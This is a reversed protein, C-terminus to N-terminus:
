KQERHAERYRRYHEECLKWDGGAGWKYATWEEVCGPFECRISQPLPPERKEDSM